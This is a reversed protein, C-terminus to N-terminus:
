SRLRFLLPLLRFTWFLFCPTLYNHDARSLCDYSQWQPLWGFYEVLSVRRVVQFITFYALSFSLCIYIDEKKYKYILSSVIREFLIFSLLLYSIKIFKIKWSSYKNNSKWDISFFFLLLFIKTLFFFRLVNKLFWAFSFLFLLTQYLYFM